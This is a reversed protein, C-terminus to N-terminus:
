LEDDSDDPNLVLKQKKDELVVYNAVVKGNVKFQFEHGPFSNLTTQENPQIKLIFDDSWYVDVFNDFNSTVAVTVAPSSDVTKENTCPTKGICEVYWQEPFMSEPLDIARRFIPVPAKFHKFERKEKLYAEWDSEWDDGYDILIEEGKKIQRLARYGFYLQAFESKLLEEPELRLVGENYNGGWYFWEIAVNSKKKGGHNCVAGHGIPLLALDSGPRSFCFNLLVSYEDSVEAVQHKPLALIPSVDVLDGKNFNASAFVGKGASEQSVIHSKNTHINSVCHGVKKLAAISEYASEHKEPVRLVIDKAKFWDDGYSNFMEEGPGIDDLVLFYNLPYVTNAELLQYAKVQRSVINEFYNGAWDDALYHQVNHRVHHNYIMSPGFEVVELGDDRPGPSFTYKNLQWENPSRLDITIAHPKAEKASYNRGAFIGIGNELFRSPAIYYDCEEVLSHVLVQICCSVILFKVLM